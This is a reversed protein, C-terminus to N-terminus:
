APDSRQNRVQLSDEPNLVRGAIQRGLAIGKASKEVLSRGAENKQTL